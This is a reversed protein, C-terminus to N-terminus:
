ASPSSSPLTHTPAQPKGEVMRFSLTGNVTDQVLTNMFRTLRGRQWATKPSTLDIKEAWVLVLYHGKVVAEELGTGQGIKSTVGNKSTLQAVFESPGAKLAAKSAASASSLNFVGITAMANDLTAVYSARMDQTCDAKRVAAQLAAGILGAHCNHGPKRAAAHFYVGGTLFKAPFLEKLTLPAEDNARTGIFGWKGPPPTPTPAAKPHPKNIAHAKPPTSQKGLSTFVLVAAVAVIIVVATGIALVV